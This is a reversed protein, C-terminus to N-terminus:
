NKSFDKIIWYGQNIWNDVKTQNIASTNIKKVKLHKHNKQKTSPTLKKKATPHTIAREVVNPETKMDNIKEKVMEDTTTVLPNNSSM